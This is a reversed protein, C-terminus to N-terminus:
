TQFNALFHLYFDVFSIMHRTTTTRLICVFNRFFITEKMKGVYYLPNGIAHALNGMRWCFCSSCSDYFLYRVWYLILLFILFISLPLPALQFFEREDTKAEEKVNVRKRSSPAPPAMNSRQSTIEPEHDRARSILPLWSPLRCSGGVTGGVPCVLPTSIISCKIKTTAPIRSRTQTLVKGGGFKQLYILNQEM